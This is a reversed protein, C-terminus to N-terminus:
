GKKERGPIVVKLDKLVKLKEISELLDNICDDQIKYKDKLETNKKIAAVYRENLEAFNLIAYRIAGTNTEVGFYKQLRSLERYEEDSLRLTFRIKDM